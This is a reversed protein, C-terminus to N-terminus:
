GEPVVGGPAAKGNRGPVEGVDKRQRAAVAASLVEEVQALQEDSLLGADFDDDAGAARSVEVAQKPEGLVYAVWTKLALVNGDRAAKMLLEGAEKANQSLINLLEIRQAEREASKGSPNPSPGGKVWNPNGRKRQTPKSAIEDGMWAWM